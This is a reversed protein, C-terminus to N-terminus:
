NASSRWLRVPAKTRAIVGKAELDLHVCKVWWGCTEGGPFLADSLRPRVLENVEAVPIGPAATPLIALMVQRMEDYKARDVRYTKGPQGVNLVKIKDTM